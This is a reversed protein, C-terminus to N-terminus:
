TKHATTAMMTTQVISALPMGISSQAVSSPQALNQLASSQAAFSQAAFSQAASSARPAPPMAVVRAEAANFMADTLVGQAKVEALKSLRGAINISWSPPAAPAATQLQANEVDAPAAAGSEGGSRGQAAM